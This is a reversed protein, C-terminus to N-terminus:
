IINKRHMFDAIHSFSTRVLGFSVSVHVRFHMFDTGFFYGLIFGVFIPKPVTKPGRFYGEQPMLHAWSPELHGQSQGLHGLIPGLHALIPGLQAMIAGLHPWSPGLRGWFLSWIAERPGDLAVGFFWSFRSGRM